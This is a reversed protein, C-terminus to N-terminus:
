EAYHRQSEDLNNSIDMTWKKKNSLLIGNYSHLGTHKSGWQLANPQEWNPAIM